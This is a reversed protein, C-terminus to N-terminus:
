RSGARTSAPLAAAPQSTDGGNAAAIAARLLRLRDDSLRCDAAVTSPPLQVYRTRVTAITRAATATDAAAKAAADNARRQDRALRAAEAQMAALQEAVHERQEAARGKIYGTGFLACCLGALLLWRYPWPILALLSM